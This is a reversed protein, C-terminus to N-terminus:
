GRQKVKTVTEKPKAACTKKRSTVEGLATELETAFDAAEGNSDEIVINGQNDIEVVIRKM